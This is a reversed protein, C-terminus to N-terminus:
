RASCSRVKMRGASYLQSASLPGTNERPRGDESIEVLLTNKSSKSLNKPVRNGCFDIVNKMRRYDIHQVESPMGYVQNTMFIAAIPSAYAYDQDPSCDSGSELETTLELKQHKQIEEAEHISVSDGAVDEEQATEQEGEEWTRILNDLHFENLPWCIRPHKATRQETFLIPWSCDTNAKGIPGLSSPSRTNPDPTTAM